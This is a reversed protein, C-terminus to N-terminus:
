REDRKFGHLKGGYYLLEGEDGLLLDALESHINVRARLKMRGSEGCDFIYDYSKGYGTDTVQKDVIKGHCHELPLNKEEDLQKRNINKVIGMVTFLLILAAIMMAILVTFIEELSLDGGGRTDIVIRITHVVNSLM